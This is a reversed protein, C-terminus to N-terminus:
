FGGTPLSPSRWRCRQGAACRRRCRGTRHPRLRSEAAPRLGTESAGQGQASAMRGTWVSRPKRLPDAPSPSGVAPRRWERPRPEAPAQKVGTKQEGPCVSRPTSAVPHVSSQPTVKAVESHGQPLHPQGRHESLFGLSTPPPPVRSAGPRGRSHPRGGTFCVSGSEWPGPPHLGLDVPVRLQPLQSWPGAWALTFPWAAPAPCLGGPPPVPWRHVSPGCRATELPTLLHALAPLLRGPKEGADLVPSGEAGPAAPGTCPSGNQSGSHADAGQAERTRGHDKRESSKGVKGDPRSGRMGEETLFSGPSLLRWCRGARGHPCQPRAPLWVGRSGRRAGQVRPCLSSVGPSTGTLQAPPARAGIHLPQAGRPSTRTGPPVEEASAAPGLLLVSASGGLGTCGLGTCGGVGPSTRAWGSAGAM